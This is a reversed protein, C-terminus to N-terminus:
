RRLALRARRPMMEGVLAAVSELRAVVRGVGMVEVEGMLGRRAQRARGATRESENQVAALADVLSEDILVM